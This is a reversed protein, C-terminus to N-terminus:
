EGKTAPACPVAAERNSSDTQLTMSISRKLPPAKTEYNSHHYYGPGQQRIWAREGCTLAPQETGAAADILSQNSEISTM